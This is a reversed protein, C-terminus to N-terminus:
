PLQKRSQRGCILFFNKGLHTYCLRLKYCLTLIFNIYPFSYKLVDSYFQQFGFVSIVNFVALVPWYGQHIYIHLNEIFYYCVLNLLVSFSDNVTILHSKDRPNLSLEVYAFWDILTICQKLLIFSFFWIILGTSLSFDDSLIWCGNMTKLFGRCILIYALIYRLVIFGMYSLGVALMSLPSLKFPNGRYDFIICPLGSEVSKSLM